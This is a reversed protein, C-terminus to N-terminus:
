FGVKILEKSLKKDFFIIGFKNFDLIMTPKPYTIIKDWVLRKKKGNRIDDIIFVSKSNCQKIGEEFFLTLKNHTLTNSFFALNIEGNGRSNILAYDDVEGTQTVRAKPAAKEFALIIEPKTIGAIIITEPKLHKCIRYLLGEFKSCSGGKEKEFIVRKLFSYAFPSHVGHPQRTIKQLITNFNHFM